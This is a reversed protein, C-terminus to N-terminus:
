GHAALCAVTQGRCPWCPQGPSSGLSDAGQARRGPARRGGDGELDEFLGVASSALMEWSSGVRGVSRQACDISWSGAGRCDQPYLCLHFFWCYCHGPTRGPPSSRRRLVGLARCIDISNWTSGKAQRPRFLATIVAGMRCLFFSLNLSAFSCPRLALSFPTESHPAPTIKDGGFGRQTEGLEAGQDANQAESPPAIPM